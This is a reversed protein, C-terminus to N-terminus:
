QAIGIDRNPIYVVKLRAALLCKDYSFVFGKTRM